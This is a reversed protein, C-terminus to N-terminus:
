RVPPLHRDLFQRLRQHEFGEMNQFSVGVLNGIERRVVRAPTHMAPEGSALNFYLRLHTETEVAVAMELLMGSIGLNISRARFRRIGDVCNVSARFSLRRHKRRDSLLKRALSKLLPALESPLAYKAMVAVEPSSGPAANKASPLGALLILPAGSNLRSSRVIRTFGSRSFNPLSTDAFVADFREERVSRAATEPTEAIVLDGGEVSVGRNFLRVTKAEESGLLIRLRPRPPMNVYTAPPPVRTLAVPTPRECWRLMAGCVLSGEGYGGHCIM